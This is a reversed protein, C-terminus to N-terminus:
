ALSSQTQSAISWEEDTEVILVRTASDDSAIDQLEADALGRDNRMRDLEIGLPSLGACVRQRIEPSHTGVGATFILCDLGGLLALYAGIYKKIRHVYVDVTLEAQSDGTACRSLIRRMDTEGCLGQLGSQWNLLYDVQDSHLGAHQSLFYPLSPDVDGSRTAMVLGELPTLGM